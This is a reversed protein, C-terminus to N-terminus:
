TMQQLLGLTKADPKGEFYRDLVRHFVSGPRSVLRQWTTEVDVADVPKDGNQVSM